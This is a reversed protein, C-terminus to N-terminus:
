TLRPSIELPAEQTNEFYLEQKGHFFSMRGLRVRSDGRFSGSTEGTERPLLCADNESDPM